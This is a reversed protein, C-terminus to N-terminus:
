PAASTASRTPARARSRPSCTAPRSAPRTPPRGPGSTASTCRTASARAERLRRAGPRRRHVDGRADVASLPILDLGINTRSRGERLDALVGQAEDASIAYYQGQVEGSDGSNGLTNIGIVRGTEDVLPGGSNGPSIPAQHQITSKYEPLGADARQRCQGGLGHGRDGQGDGHRRGRVVDPLRLGDRRRGRRLPRPHVGADSLAAVAHDPRGRPRRLALQGRAAGAVRSGDPCRRRSRPCGPWSM